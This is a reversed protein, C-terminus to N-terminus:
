PIALDDYERFNLDQTSHSNYLVICTKYYYIEEKCSYNWESVSRSLLICKNIALM